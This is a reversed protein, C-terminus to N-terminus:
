CDEEAARFYGFLLARLSPDYYANAEQMAHPYVKLLGHYPNGTRRSRDPRWKVERGLAGEFRRITDMIVAYVMQQHFQPDAESPALGGQALLALSDLDIGEYYCQNSANYDIVAIKQGVPGKKLREFAVPITLHNELRTGRSPDFAYARLLRQPPSAPTRARPM